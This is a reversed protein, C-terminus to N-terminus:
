QHKVMDNLKPPIFKEFTILEIDFNMHANPPVVAPVGKSSYALRPTVTCHAREGRSMQMVAESVGKIVPDKGMGLTFDITGGVRERSSDVKLGLGEGDTIVYADYIIRCTYGKTPFNVGDRFCM